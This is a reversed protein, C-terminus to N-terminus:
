IIESTFILLYFDHTSTVHLFYTQTILLSFDILSDLTQDNQKNLELERDPAILGEPQQM